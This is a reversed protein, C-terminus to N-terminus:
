NVVFILMRCHKKARIKLIGILYTVDMYTLFEPLFYPKFFCDMKTCTQVRSDLPDSVGVGFIIQM